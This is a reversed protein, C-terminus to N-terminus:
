YAGDTLLEFGDTWLDTRLARVTGNEYGLALFRGNLSFSTVTCVQTRDSFVTRQVKYMHDLELVRLSHKRCNTVIAVTDGRVDM